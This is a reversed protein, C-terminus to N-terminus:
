RRGCRTFTARVGNASYAISSPLGSVIEDFTDAIKGALGTQDSALRVSFDADRVTQLPQLASLAIQPQM